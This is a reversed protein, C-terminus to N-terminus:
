YLKHQHAFQEIDMIIWQELDEATKIEHLQM